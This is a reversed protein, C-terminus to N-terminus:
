AIWPPVTCICIHCAPRLLASSPPPFRPLPHPWCAGDKAKDRAKGLGSILNCPIGSYPIAPLLNHGKRTVRGKLVKFLRGAGVCAYRQLTLKPSRHCLASLHRAPSQPLLWWPVCSWPLVGAKGTRTESRLVCDTREEAERQEEM